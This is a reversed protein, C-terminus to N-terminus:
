TERFVVPFSLEVPEGMPPAALQWAALKRELCRVLRPLNQLGTQIRINKIRGNPLIRWALEVRIQGRKKLLERSLCTRLEGKRAAIQSEIRAQYRRGLEGEDMGDMKMSALWEGFDTSSSEGDSRGGVHGRSPGLKSLLNDGSGLGAGLSAMAEALGKERSRRKARRKKRVKVTEPESKLTESPKAKPKLVVKPVQPQPEPKKPEPKLRFDELFLKAFRNGDELDVLRTEKVPTPTLWLGLAFLAHFALSVCLIAVWLPSPVIRKTPPSPEWPDVQRASFLYPEMTEFIVENTVDLEVVRERHTLRLSWGEPSVNAKLHGAAFTQELSGDSRRGYWIGVIRGDLWELIEIDGPGSCPEGLGASEVKVRLTYPGLRCSTQRLFTSSHLREGELWVGSASGLDILRILSKEVSLSLHFSALDRGVLSLDCDRHAGVRLSCSDEFDKSIEYQQGDVHEANLTVRYHM